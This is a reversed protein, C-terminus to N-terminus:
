SAPPRPLEYPSGPALYNGKTVFEALRDRAGDRALNFVPIGRESAVHIATGTGGTRASREAASECGDRTWCLVFDVPQALDGGVIQGVNRAHLLRVAMPLRAWGPHSQSAVELHAEGPLNFRGKRGNFGHWPLWLDMQGGALQAGKEFATDAGDACGSRLIYGRAALRQAVREMYVLVQPPTKRSGVGAYLMM